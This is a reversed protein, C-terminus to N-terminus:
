TQQNIGHRIQLAMIIEIIRQNHLYNEIYNLMRFCVFYCSVFMVLLFSVVYINYWLTDFFFQMTKNYISLGIILGLAISFIILMINALGIASRSIYWMLSSYRIHAEIKELESIATVNDRYNTKIENIYNRQAKSQPCYISDAIKEYGKNDLYKRICCFPYKTSIEKHGVIFMRKYKYPGKNDKDHYDVSTNINCENKCYKMPVFFYKRATKFQKKNSDIEKKSREKDIVDALIIGISYLGNIAYNDRIYSDVTKVRHLHENLYDCIFRKMKRYSFFRDSRNILSLFTYDKSLLKYISYQNPLDCTRRYYITGFVFSFILFLILVSLTSSITLYQSFVNESKLFALINSQPQKILIDILLVPSFCIFVLSFLLFAGPFVAGLLEKLFESYPSRQIKDNM